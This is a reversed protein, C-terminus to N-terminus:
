RKKPAFLRQWFNPKLANYDKKLQRQYAELRVNLSNIVSNSTYTAGSIADVDKALAEEVSLGKWSQYLGGDSVRQAFRPTEHNDLMAVQMIRNEPDLAILLPTPGNYGKVPDSYPASLLVTGLVQGNADKVQYYATDIAQVESAEIFYPKVESLPLEPIRVPTVNCGVFTMTGVLLLGSMLNRLIRM